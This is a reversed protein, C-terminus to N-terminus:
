KTLGFLRGSKFRCECHSIHLYSWYLAISRVWSERPITIVFIIIHDHVIKIDQNNDSNVKHGQSTKTRMQNLAILKAKVTEM